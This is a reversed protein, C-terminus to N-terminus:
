YHQKPFVLQDGRALSPRLRVVVDRPGTRLKCAWFRIPWDSRSLSGNVLRVLSWSYILIGFHRTRMPSM